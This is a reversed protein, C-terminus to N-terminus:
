AAVGRIEPLYEALPKDLAVRLRGIASRRRVSLARKTAGVGEMGDTEVSVVRTARAAKGGVPRGRARATGDAVAEGWIRVNGDEEGRAM